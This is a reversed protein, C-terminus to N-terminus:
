RAAEAYPLLYKAREVLEAVRASNRDGLALADRIARLGIQKYASEKLGAFRARLTHLTKTMPPKAGTPSPDIEDESAADEWM